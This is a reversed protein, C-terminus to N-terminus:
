AVALMAPILLFRRYPTVLVPVACGGIVPGVESEPGKDWASASQKPAPHTDCGALRADGEIRLRGVSGCGM